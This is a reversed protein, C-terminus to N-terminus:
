LDNYSILRYDLFRTLAKEKINKIEEQYDTSPHGPHCMLEFTSGDAPSWHSKVKELLGSYYFFSDTTSFCTKYYRNVVRQRHQSNIFDLVRVIKNKGKNIPVTTSSDSTRTSTNGDHQLHRKMMGFFSYTEGIRVKRIEYKRFVSTFTPLLAQIRTHVLHHSDAHSVSIGLFLLTDVQACLEKYIAEKLREDFKTVTFIGGKIFCGASDTIGYESLVPNKTISAYEDLCFHIGFSAAPHSRVFRRVEDLCTGNAMITASSILREEILKETERTVSENLGFDDANIIIKTM